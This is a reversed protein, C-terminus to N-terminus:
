LWSIAPSATERFFASDGWHNNVHAMSKPHYRDKKVNPIAM